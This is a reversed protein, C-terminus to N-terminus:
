GNLPSTLGALCVSHPVRGYCFLLLPLQGVLKYIKFAVNDIVKQISQNAKELLLNILSVM